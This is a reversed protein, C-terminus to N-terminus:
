ATWFIWAAFFCMPAFVLTALIPPFVPTSDAWLPETLNVFGILGIIVAFVRSV